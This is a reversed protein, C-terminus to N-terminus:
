SERGVRKVMLFKPQAHNLSLANKTKLFGGFSVPGTLRKKIKTRKLTSDLAVPPAHNPM